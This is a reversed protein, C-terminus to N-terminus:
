HAITKLTGSQIQQGLSMRIYRDLEKLQVAPHLDGDEELKQFLKISRFGSEREGNKWLIILHDASCTVLGHDEFYLFMQLIFQFVLELGDLLPQLQTETHAELLHPPKKPNSHLPIERIFSKRTELTPSDLWPRVAGDSLCRGLRQTKLWSESSPWLRRLAPIVPM